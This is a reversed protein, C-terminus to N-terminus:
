DSKIGLKVTVQFEIQTDSIVRGRQEIVEFWGVSSNENTETVVKKIADSVSENSLGVKTIIEFSKSM